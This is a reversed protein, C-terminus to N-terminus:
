TSVAHIIISATRERDLTHTNLMMHFNAPDDASVRFYKRSYAVRAKEEENTVKEAAQLSIGDRETLHTREDSGVAIRVPIGEISNEHGPILASM